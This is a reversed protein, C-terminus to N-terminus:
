RFLMRAPIAPLIRTTMMNTMAKITKFVVPKKLGSPITPILTKLGMISAM